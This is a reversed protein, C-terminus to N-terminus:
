RRASPRRGAAGSRATARSPGRSLPPGRRGRRTRAADLLVEAGTVEPEVDVPEAVVDARPAVRGADLAGAGSRTRMGADRGSRRGTHRWARRRGGAPRRWAPGPGACWRAAACAAATVAAMTTPVPAPPGKRVNRDSVSPKDMGVACSLAPGVHDRAAYPDCVVVAARGGCHRVLGRGGRPEGGFASRLILARTPIPDSLRDNLGLWHHPRCAATPSGPHPLGSPYRALM